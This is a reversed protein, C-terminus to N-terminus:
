KALDEAITVLDHPRRIVIRERGTEIWGQREWESLTRSVSFLTTGSMEALNQQSLAIEIGGDERKKGMQMTLRLLSRAVRQEVREISLERYRSQMEEMRSRMVDMIKFSLAPYRGALEHLEPGSWALASSDELAEASVPYRKTPSIIAIGAFLQGAVVMGLGVQQGDPSVQILKVRGRTLIYMHRAEDGQMFFFSGEEVSREHCLRALEELAESPLDNFLGTEKIREYATNM